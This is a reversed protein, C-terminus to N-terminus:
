PLKKAPLGRSPSPLPGTEKLIPKRLRAIPKHSLSM